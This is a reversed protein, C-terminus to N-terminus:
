WAYPANEIQRFIAPVVGIALVGIGSYVFVKSLVDIDYHEDDIEDDIEDTMAPSESALQDTSFNKRSNPDSGRLHLYGRTTSPLASAVVAESPIDVFSPMAAIRHSDPVDGYDTAAKYHKRTPLDVGFTKAFARFVKPLLFRMVKKCVIRWAFLIAIGLTIKVLALSVGALMSWPYPLKNFSNQFNSPSESVKPFYKATSWHCLFSGLMVSLVAIADEFCPCDDVPEPHKHVMALCVVISILPVTWHGGEVWGEVAPAAFEWAQWCAWGMIAGAACDTTSHMGCYIRGFIVSSAYWLLAIKGIYVATQSIAQTEQLRVLLSALFLAISVANTSHSSPFGYEQGHTSMSLRIVPPSYPRPTCALDKAYSSVYIGLGTVYLLGRGHVDGGFWFCMPLVTMFFTHTGFIATWFFYRDRWPTRIRKQLRGLMENEARLRSVLIRRLWARYRPLAKEYIEDAQCGAEWEKQLRQTEPSHQFVATGGNALKAHLM